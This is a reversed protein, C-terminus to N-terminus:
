ELCKLERVFFVQKNNVTLTKPSRGIDEFSLIIAIASTIVATNSFMKPGSSVRNFASSDKSIDLLIPGFVSSM